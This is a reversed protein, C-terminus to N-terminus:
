MNHFSVMGSCMCINLLNAYQLSCISNFAFLICHLLVTSAYFIYKHGKTFINKSQATCYFFSVKIPQKNSFVTCCIYMKLCKSQYSQYRLSYICIKLLINCLIHLGAVLRKLEQTFYAPISNSMLVKFIRASLTHIQLNRVLITLKRYQAM